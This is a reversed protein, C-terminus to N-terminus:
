IIFPNIVPPRDIRCGLIILMQMGMNHEHWNELPYPLRCTHHPGLEKSPKQEIISNIGSVHQKAPMPIDGIIVM